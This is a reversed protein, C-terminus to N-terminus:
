QNSPSVSPNNLGNTSPQLYETTATPMTDMDSRNFLNDVERNQHQFNFTKVDAYNGIM